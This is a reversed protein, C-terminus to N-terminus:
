YLLYLISICFSFMAQKTETTCWLWKMSKKSAGSKNLACNSIYEPM